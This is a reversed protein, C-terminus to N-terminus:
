LCRLCGKFSPDKGIGGGRSFEWRLSQCPMQLKKSTVFTWLFPSRKGGPSWSACKGGIECFFVESLKYYKTIGALNQEDSTMRQM